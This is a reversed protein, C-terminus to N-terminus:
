GGLHRLRGSGIPVRGLPALIAAVTLEEDRGGRTGEDFPRNAGFTPALKPDALLAVPAGIRSTTVQPMRGFAYIAANRSSTAPDSKKSRKTSRLLSLNLLDLRHGSPM